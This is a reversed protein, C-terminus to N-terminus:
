CKDLKLLLPVSQNASFNEKLLLFPSVEVVAVESVEESAVVVEGSVEM